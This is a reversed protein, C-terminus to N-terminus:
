LEETSYQLFGEGRIERSDVLIMFADPDASYVIEKLDAIQRKSVACLLVPRERHTYMGEGKLSTVGRDMTKMVTEAIENYRASVIFATYANKLGSILRDAVIGSVIVSITAYLSVRIGFIWVSLLIVAGDLVPMMRAVGIHPLFKQVLAAVTDTGGTTAKGFFVLGLGLGMIAGGFLSILLLDDEVVAQVPIVYLWASFLLSAILTRRMFRWGRLLIALLILPVNLILNGLWVPMGGDMLHLTLHRMIIALGTFGGPVMDAPTYFLNAALATFFTGVFIWILNQRAEKTFLRKIM